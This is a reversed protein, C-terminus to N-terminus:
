FPLLKKPCGYIQPWEVWPVDTAGVFWTVAKWKGNAKKFLAGCNDDFAGTDIDAQYDTGRYDFASGNPKVPRGYFFAWNGSLRLHEVKFLMPKGRMPKKLAARMADM